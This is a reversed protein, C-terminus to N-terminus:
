RATPARRSPPGSHNGSNGNHPLDTRSVMLLAKLMKEVDEPLYRLYSKPGAGQPDLVHGYFEIFTRYAPVVADLVAHKTGERLDDETVIWHAQRACSEELAANFRSLRQRVLERASGRGGAPGMMGEQNLHHLVHGWVEREYALAHQQVQSVNGV